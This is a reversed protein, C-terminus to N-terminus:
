SIKKSLLKDGNFYPELAKKFAEEIPMDGYTEKGVYLPSKKKEKKAM